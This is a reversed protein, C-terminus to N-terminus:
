VGMETASDGAGAEAAEVVDDAMAEATDQAAEEADEAVAEPTEVMAGVAAEVEEAEAAAAEAAVELEEAAEAGADAMTPAEAVASAIAEDVTAPAGKGNGDAPAATAGSRQAKLKAPLGLTDFFRRVPDTPQAGVSLWYLAREEKIVVTPPDTRPNYHGIIEIFRSDRAARSDTVVVRYSPQKKAGVRRLRIKVM